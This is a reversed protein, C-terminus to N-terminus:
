GRQYFHPKAILLQMRGSFNGIYLLAAIGIQIRSKSCCEPIGEYINHKSCHLNKPTKIDTIIRAFKDM